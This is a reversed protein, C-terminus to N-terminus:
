TAAPTASIPVPVMTGLLAAVLKRQTGTIGWVKAEVTILRRGARLVQGQAVLRDAKAPSLLNIKIEATLVDHDPPMLTMAAYGAATDGLGFTLAAHGFGHQQRNGELIPASLHCSGDDLHDLSAGFSKMMNQAAFSQQIQTTREPPM